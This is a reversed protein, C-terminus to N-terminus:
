IWFPVYFTGGFVKPVSNRRCFIWFSDWEEHLKQWGHTVFVLELRGLVFTCCTQICHNLYTHQLWVYSVHKNSQGEETLDSDKHDAVRSFWRNNGVSLLTWLVTESKFYMELQPLKGTLYDKFPRWVPLKLIELMCGIYLLIALMTRCSLSIFVRM